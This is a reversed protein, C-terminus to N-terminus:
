KWYNVLLTDTSVPVMGTLFTITGGSITYDNGVGANLMSGNLFVEETGLLPTNALTFSTNSGDMSGSPLERTVKGNLTYTKVLAELTGWSIKSLVNGTAANMMAVQDNSGPTTEAASENILAGISTTTEDGTNIGSANALVNRQADSVYRYGASDPINATTIPIGNINYTQGTPINISGGDGITVMSNQLILGSAGDYRAIANNTSSTPGVVNGTAASSTISNWFEGVTAQNGAPTNDKTCLLENGASVAIGDAGGIKGGVSIKYVWGCDAAPYNPNTSCDIVGKYVLADNAAILGDAYEKTVADTLNQPTALNTVTFGNANLTADFYAQTSLRIQTTAM